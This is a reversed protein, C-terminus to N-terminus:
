MHPGQAEKSPTQDLLGESVAEIQTNKTTEM